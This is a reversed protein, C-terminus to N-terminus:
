PNTPIALPRGERTYVAVDWQGTQNVEFAVREGNASIQPNRVLGKLNNSILRVQESTRDYIYIGVRDNQSAAFAVYRGDESLSPDSALSDFRNLNPLPILRRDNSNWLYVDQSGNRDSIFTVFGGMVQASHENYPSNLSLGNAVVGNSLLRDTPSCGALSGLMLALVLYGMKKLPMQFKM